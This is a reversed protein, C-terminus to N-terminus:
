DKIVVVQMGIETYQKFRCGNKSHYETSITAEDDDHFKGSGRYTTSIGIHLVDMTTGDCTSKVLTTENM